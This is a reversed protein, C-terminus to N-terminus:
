RHLFDVIFQYEKEDNIEVVYGGYLGCMAIAVDIDRPFSRTAFYTHGNYYTTAVKIAPQTSNLNAKLADLEAKTQTEKDEVAHLKAATHNLRTNTSQLQVVTKDLAM